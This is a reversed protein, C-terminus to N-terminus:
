MIQKCRITAQSTSKIWKVSVSVESSGLQPALNERVTAEVDQVAEEGDPLQFIYVRIEQLGRFIRSITIGKHNFEVGLLQYVEDLSPRILNIQVCTIQERQRPELKRLASEMSRLHEFSFTNLVLPMSVVDTYIQRCSLLLAM